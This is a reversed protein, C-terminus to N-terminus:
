KGQRRLRYRLTSEPINLERATASLNGRCRELCEAMEETDLAEADSERYPTQRGNGNNDDSAAKKAHERAQDEILRLIKNTDGDPALAAVRGSFNRLERVNGPWDLERLRDVVLPHQASPLGEKRFGALLLFHEFLPTIDERRDRLPPLQFTLQQLRHYLDERFEHRAILAPLNQNTMAVFRVDIPRKDVEGLRRVSKSELVQLLKAQTAPPIEAIENFCFTGGDSSEILGPKDYDAGSYAGKCHGFLETELLSETIAATNENRFPKDARRSTYHIYEAILDKGTGTEGTILVTLDSERAMAIQELISLMMPSRTIITPAEIRAKGDRATKKDARNLGAIAKEVQAVRKPVGMETFLTRALELHNRREEMTFAASMGAAVHSLALEYRAGCQQM